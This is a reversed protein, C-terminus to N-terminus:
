AQKKDKKARRREEDEEDEMASEVEVEKAHEVPLLPEVAPADGETPISQTRDVPEHSPIEETSHTHTPASVDPDLADEPESTDGGGERKRRKKEKKKAKKAAKKEKKTMKRSAGGEKIAKPKKQVHETGFGTVKTKAAPEKRDAQLGINKGLVITDTENM